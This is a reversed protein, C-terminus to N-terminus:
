KVLTYLATLLEGLKKLIEIFKVLSIKKIFASKARRIMQNLKNRATRSFQLYQQCGTARFLRIYVDRQRMACYIEATLWPTVKECQKYRKFPCMIALSDIAKQYLIDLM